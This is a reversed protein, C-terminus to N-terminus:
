QLLEHLADILVSEVRPSVRSVPTSFGTEYGGQTYAIATGIYGPGYDGYAAMCVFADPRMKQAALQYEVFLEGPMQLIDISSAGEGLGRGSPSPSAIRLRGITIKHGESVREAWAINRAARLRPVLKQSEDHLTKTQEKEDYWEGVPLAVDRTAWDFSLDGAPVKKTDDWARTMGEALRHALVPRMAHTGDNYKGAAVNGGAGNFHIHLGPKEATEAEDRAMGVFDASCKGTYYYSQPHTAYYTLVAIPRDKNWFSVMRVNPDILGEPLERGAPDKSASMRAYKMKGDPGLIRRNSAVKEVLGKGYGVDTVTELHSEAKAAAAAVRRTAERTFEVPFLQNPIGAEAAIKEALFDCGPADHQHLTHICVRDIPTKCAEAIAKRFADHGENGIGVWDFAVMVLPPQKDAQLVIGRASLPDNMGTAPPVLGDCLPSGPPPTVDVKFTAVRLDVAQVGCAVLACSLAVCIRLGFEKRLKM